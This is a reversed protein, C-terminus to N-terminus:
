PAVEAAPADLTAEHRGRIRCVLNWLQTELQEDTLQLPEGDRGKLAVSLLKDNGALALSLGRLQVTKDAERTAAKMREVFEPSEEAQYYVHPAVGIKKLAGLLDGTNVYHECLDATWAPLSM